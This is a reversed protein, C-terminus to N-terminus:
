DNDVSSAAQIQWLFGFGVEDVLERLGSVLRDATPTRRNRSQDCQLIKTLLNIRM